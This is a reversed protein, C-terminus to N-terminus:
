EKLQETQDNYNDIQKELQEIRKFFLQKESVFEENLSESNSALALITRNLDYIEKSLTEIIDPV